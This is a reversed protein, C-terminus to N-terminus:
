NKIISINLKSGATVELTILQTETEILDTVSEKQDIFLPLRVGLASSIGNIIDIGANMQMALNQTGYPKGDIIAECLEKEGDNTLNQEFMRWRVIKFFSSVAEEVITIKRKKFDWIEDQVMELEATKQSLAKKEEELASKQKDINKNTERQGLKLHVDKQRAQYEDRQAVLNKRKEERETDTTTPALALRIDREIEGKKTLLKQYEEKASLALSREPVNKKGTEAAELIGKENKLLLDIRSREKRDQQISQELMKIDGNIREADAYLDDLLKNHRANFAQIARERADSVEEEPLPRNCTPCVAEVTDVYQTQNEKMWEAQKQNFEAKKDDLLKENRGIREDIEAISKSYGAIAANSESIKEEFEGIRKQRARDIENEIELLQQGVSALESRFKAARDVDSQTVTAALSANLDDIKEKLEVEEKELADFDYDVKTKDLQDLRTPIEKAKDKVRELEAKVQRQYEGVTKGSHLATLVHPYGAAIEEDTQIKAISQLKARRDETKMRMFATITSLMLWDESKCIADIKSSDSMPIPSGNWWFETTRGKLVEEQQGRPKVWNENLCRKFIVEEGDVSLIIEVSTEVRHIVHGAADLPQVDIQSGDAGKGFLCWMYADYLSTKGTGNAGSVKTISGFSAELNTIGKFNAVKMAVLVVEKM